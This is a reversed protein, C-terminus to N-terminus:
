QFGDDVQDQGDEGASGSSGETVREGLHEDADGGEDEGHEEEAGVQHHDLGHEAGVFALGGFREEDGEDDHDEAQDGEQAVAFGEFGGGVSEGVPHGLAGAGAGWSGEGWGSLAGM